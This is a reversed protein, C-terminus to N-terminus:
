KSTDGKSSPQPAPRPKEKPASVGMSLLTYRFAKRLADLFSM